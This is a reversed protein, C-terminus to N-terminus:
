IKLQFSKWRMRCRALDGIISAGIRCTARGMPGCKAKRRVTGISRARAKSGRRAFSRCSSKMPRAAWGAAWATAANAEAPRQDSKVDLIRQVIRDREAEAVASIITFFLKSIGNGAVDGGRHDPGVFSGFPM